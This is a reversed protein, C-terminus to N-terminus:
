VVQLTTLPGPATVKALALAAVVPATKV